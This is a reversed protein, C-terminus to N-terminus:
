CSASNCRAREKCCKMTVERISPRIWTSQPLSSKPRKFKYRVLNADKKPRNIPSAERLQFLSNMRKKRLNPNYPKCSTQPRKREENIIVLQEEAFIVGKAIRENTFSGMPPKVGWDSM